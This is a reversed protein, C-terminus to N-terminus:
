RESCTCVYEEREWGRTRQGGNEGQVSQFGVGLSAQFRGRRLNAQAVRARVAAVASVEAM